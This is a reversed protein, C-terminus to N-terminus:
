RRKKGFIRRMAAFGGRFLRRIPYNWRRTYTYLRYWLHKKCDYEREGKFFSSLVGIVCDFPVTETYYCNDGRTLYATDTIGVVRHMVNQGIENEYLLVDGKKARQTLPVVVTQDCGGRLMPRMSDGIPTSIYFGERQLFAIKAKSAENM